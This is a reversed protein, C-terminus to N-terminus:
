DVNDHLFSNNERIEPKKEGNEGITFRSVIKEDSSNEHSLTVGRRAYAPVQEIEDLNNMAPTNFNFQKLNRMREDHIEPKMKPEPTEEQNFDMPVDLMIQQHKENMQFESQLSNNEDKPTSTDEDLGITIRPAAFDSEEELINFVPNTEISENKNFVTMEPVEEILPEEKKPEQLNIVKSEASTFDQHTKGFNTAVVTVSISNGLIQDTGNGWIIEAQAGAANQIYDSIDSVEDMRAEDEGSAIYLLINRAGRIENDNLLPSNLAMEVAQLARDEGEAIGTGMIAMGSNKMVTKVDEFDVNMYGTVTILESIGKAAITLIDDAKAFADGLKLNGYLERVKDNNIIILSDVYKRMEEIGLSAQNLRKGGEFGFPTTVIGVTLIDLEKAIQAIVPAAGTGTGGGMGATIFVMKTNTSLIERIQDINELAANRGVEPSNGAGRGETLGAGIQLRSAVPSMGLAQLDTNCVVFEVGTIGQLFMHNVANSGGGGVGFVKIIPPLTTSSEFKININSELEPM